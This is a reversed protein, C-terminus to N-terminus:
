DILMTADLSTPDHTLSGLVVDPFVTAQVPECLFFGQARKCGLQRVMEFQEATEIGEAVVEANM